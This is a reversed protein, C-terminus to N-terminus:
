GGIAALADEGIPIQAHLELCHCLDQLRVLHDYLCRRREYLVPIADHPHEAALTDRVGPALLLHTARTHTREHGLYTSHLEIGHDPLTTDLVVVYPSFSAARTECAVAEGDILIAVPIVTTHTM